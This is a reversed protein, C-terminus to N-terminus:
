IARFAARAPAINYISGCVLVVDDPKALAMAQRVAAGVEANWYAEGCHRRAIEALTRAEQSRPQGSSTAIFVQARDAVKGVCGTYDKDAFMGMVVILRRGNLTEDLNRCLADIAGPNHGGDLVCLPADKVREFRGPMYAAAIGAAIAADTVHYGRAALGRCVEFATVANRIQYEGALPIRLDVGRYRIQSETLSRSLVEVADMDPITLGANQRAAADRVVQMVEEPQHPTLVVACGPKIIGSKEAAIAAVTPGLAATHDLSISTLVAAETTTVINTCDGTGGVGAEIVAFDCHKRAFYSFAMATEMEFQTPHHFGQERLADIHPLLNEVEATLDEKPILQGDLQIRERFDDVYPSVFLGVRYGAARLVAATMAATSGKGNTGTIHVVRLRNQPNGMRQALARIRRLGPKAGFTVTNQIRQLAEEYTM